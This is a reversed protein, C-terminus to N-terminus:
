LIQSVTDSEVVGETGLVLEKFEKELVFRISPPTAADTWVVNLCPGNRQLSIKKHVDSDLAPALGSVTEDVNARQRATEPRCMAHYHVFGGALLSKFEHSTRLGVVVVQKTTIDKELATLIQQAWFGPTGFQPHTKRLLGLFLINPLSPVFEGDGFKRFESVTAPPPNGTLVCTEKLTENVLSRINCVSLDKAGELLQLIGTGPLGTLFLKPPRRRDAPLPAPTPTAPTPKSQAALQASVPINEVSQAKAMETEMVANSQSQQEPTLVPMTVNNKPNSLDAILAQLAQADSTVTKM